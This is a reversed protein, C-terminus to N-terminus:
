GISYWFPRRKAELDFGINLPTQHSKDHDLQKLESKVQLEQSSQQLLLKSSAQKELSRQHRYHTWYAHIFLQVFTTVGAIAIFIILWTSADQVLEYQM